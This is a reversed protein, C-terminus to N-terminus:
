KFKSPRMGKIEEWNTRLKKIDEKRRNSGKGFKKTPQQSKSQESM